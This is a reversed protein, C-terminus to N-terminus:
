GVSEAIMAGVIRSGFTVILMAFVTFFPEWMGEFMTALMAFPVVAGGFLLIGIVLAWFGWLAYTLIISLLWTVAGFVFSSMFILGGTLGRLSSFLSLPLLIFLDIAVAIWGIAILPQLLHKAAWVSGVLLILPITSLALFAVFGLSMEGFQKVKEVASAM